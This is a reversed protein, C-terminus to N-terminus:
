QLRGRANVAQAERDKLGQPATEQTAIWERIDRISETDIVALEQLLIANAERVERALTEEATEYPEIINGLAVWELIARYHRNRTDAPVIMTDNVILDEDGICKVRYIEQM